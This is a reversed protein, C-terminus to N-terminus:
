LGSEALYANKRVIAASEHPSLGYGSPLVTACEMQVAALQSGLHNGDLRSGRLALLIVIGANTSSTVASSRYNM